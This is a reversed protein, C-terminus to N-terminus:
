GIRQSVTLAMYDDPSDSPVSTVVGTGKNTLITLLPLVYIREHPCNPASVPLGILDQGKLELLCEPSGRTPTGEQVCAGVMYNVLVGELRFCPCRVRLTQSLRHLSM